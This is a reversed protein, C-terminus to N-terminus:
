SGLNYLFSVLWISTVVPVAMIILIIIAALCGASEDTLESDNNENNSIVNHGSPNKISKAIDITTKNYVSNYLAKKPNNIYGVGKNGYAPNIVRKAIRKAKGTTRAKLSKKFSPTRIGYKM